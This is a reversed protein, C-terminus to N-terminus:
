RFLSIFRWILYKFHAKKGGYLIFKKNLKLYEPITNVYLRSFASDCGILMYRYFNYIFSILQDSKIGLRSYVIFFKKYFYHFQEKSLRYKAVGWDDPRYYLYYSTNNVSVSKIHRYYELMFITDEGLRINSDFRIHYKEIIDRRLFKAAVMRLIDKHLTESMFTIFDGGKYIGEVLKERTNNESTFRWRQVAFDVEDLGKIDFYDLDVTDDSDIFTVWEGSANDLGMNRASSVGGNEKHFVHIRADKEAFEDCISASCDNSGDDVLIVELNQLPQSIVSEVCRSLYKDTNYVPIIVSVKPNM